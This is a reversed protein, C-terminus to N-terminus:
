RPAGSGSGGTGSKVAPDEEKARSKTREEVERLRRAEEPSLEGAQEIKRRGEESQVFESQSERYRRDAEKDGEGQVKRKPDKM